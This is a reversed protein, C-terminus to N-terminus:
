KFYSAEAAATINSTIQPQTPTQSAAKAQVKTSILAVTNLTTRLKVLVPALSIQLTPSGNISQNAVQQLAFSLTNYLQSMTKAAEDYKGEAQFKDVAATLNRVHENVNQTVATQAQADLRGHKALTQAEDLREKLLFLDWNVVATDTHALARELKENVEIKYSYLFDGPLSANAKYSLEGGIAAALM